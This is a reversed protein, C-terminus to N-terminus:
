PLREAIRLVASRARPNRAMEAADPLVKGLERFSLARVEPLPLRRSGAAQRARERLFNKVIRDELSHFSIACLRGGPKLAREAAALGAEIASLEGNVAIRIAQFSRTAPHVGPGRPLQAAICEALDLTRLFPREGRRAVLARAVRRAHREEGYESLVRALEAESVGALWEAASVGATPDMRMDLPGDRLFSFGREAQDLQPSSVGFDFMVGDVGREPLFAGLDAFNAQRASVRPDGGWVAVAHAIAEPDRDFVLLRGAAGLQALLAQSHGGRGYTADVYCGDPRVALGALTAGLLVPQHAAPPLPLVHPSADITM